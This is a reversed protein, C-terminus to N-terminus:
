LVLDEMVELLPLVVQQAVVAVRIPLEQVVREEEAQAAQLM